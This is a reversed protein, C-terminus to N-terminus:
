RAEVDKRYFRLKGTPTHHFPIRRKEVWSYVTRPKVKRIEAVERVTLVEETPPPQRASAEVRAIRRMEERLAQLVDPSFVKNLDASM